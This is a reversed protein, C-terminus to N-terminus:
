LILDSQGLSYIYRPPLAGVVFQCNGCQSSWHPCPNETGIFKLVERQCVSLFPRCKADKFEPWSSLLRCNLGKKDRYLLCSSKMDDENEIYHFIERFEQNLREEKHEVCYGMVINTLDPLLVKNIEVQMDVVNYYNVV